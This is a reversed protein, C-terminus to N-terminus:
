RSLQKWIEFIRGPVNREFTTSKLRCPPSFPTNKGGRFWIWCQGCNSLFEVLVVAHLENNPTSCVKESRSKSRIQCESPITVKPFEPKRTNEHFFCWKFRKTANSETLPQQLQFNALFCSCIQIAKDTNVRILNQLPHAWNDITYKYM